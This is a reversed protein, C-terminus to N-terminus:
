CGEGVLRGRLMRGWGFTREVDRQGVCEVVATEDEGVLRGRLM